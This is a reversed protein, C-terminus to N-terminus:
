HFGIETTYVITETIYLVQGPSIPPPNLLNPYNGIVQQNVEYITKWQTEQGYAVQAIAVLTDGEQVLYIARVQPSEVVPPIYLVEGPSLAANPNNGIKAQNAHYIAMSYPQSNNGYARQAISSLTDGSQVTYNSGQGAQQTM